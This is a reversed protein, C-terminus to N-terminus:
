IGKIRYFLNRFSLIPGQHDTDNDIFIKDNTLEAENFSLPYIFQPDGLYNIPGYKIAFIQINGLSDKRILPFDQTYDLYIGVLKNEEINPILHNDSGTFYFKIQDRRDLLSYTGFYYGQKTKVIGHWLLSNLPTPSVMIKEYEIKQTNLAEVFKDRAVEKSVFTWFIFLTSIFLTMRIISLRRHKSPNKFLLAVVGIGLILTYTPEIVHINNTSFIHHSFPSLLRTGYTTCADLLSHTMLAFFFALNWSTRSHQRKYFRHFMEGLVVSLLIALGISHSVGRHVALFEVEHYFPYLFVDLDPLTGAVAGILLSKKGIEADKVLAFTTAGLLAQTLSDM